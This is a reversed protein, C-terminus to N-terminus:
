RKNNIMNNLITLRKYAENFFVKPKAIQYGLQLHSECALVGKYNIEKFKDVLTNWNITGDYPLLHEDGDQDNDHIHAVIIKDKYKEFDFTDKYHVHDHGCDYCIKLYDSQINDFVYDFVEKDKLNEIAITFKYKEATKLIERLRNLGVESLIPLDFSRHVHMVGINIKNYALQKIDESYLEVLKDGDTTDKWLNIVNHTGKYGLHAFSINLGLARILEIRHMAVKSFGGTRWSIFVNKFGAKKILRVSEDDNVLKNFPKEDCGVVMAINNM